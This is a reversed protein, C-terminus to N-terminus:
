VAFQLGRKVLEWWHQVNVVSSFHCSITTENISLTLFTSNKERKIHKPCRCINRRKQIARAWKRKWKPARGNWISKYSEQRYPFTVCESFSHSELEEKWHKLVSFVQNRPSSCYFHVSTFLDWPIFKGTYNAVKKRIRKRLRITKLSARM